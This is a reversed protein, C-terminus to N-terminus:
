TQLYGREVGVVEKEAKVEGGEVRGRVKPRSVARTIVRIRKNSVISSHPYEPNTKQNMGVKRQTQTV